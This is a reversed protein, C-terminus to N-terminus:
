GVLKDNSANNSVKSWPSIKGSRQLVLSLVDINLIENSRQTNFLVFPASLCDLTLTTCLFGMLELPFFHTKLSGLELLLLLLVLIRAIHATFRSTGM